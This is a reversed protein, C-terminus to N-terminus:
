GGGGGGESKHPLGLLTKMFEYALFRIGNNPLVKLMNAVWGHYIGRAGENRMITIFANWTNDYIKGKMQMRRRITDLPYCITQAVLGAAAGMSLTAITGPRKEPFFHNKLTDYAAFNFAVFPAISVLTPGLGKYFAQVGGEQLVSRAADMVGKLEPQVALRLRLLDLPHTVFTATMGACAGALLRREVTLQKENPRLLYLKYQEYSMFQTGSYPIVRLCNAGNGRWYGLPGDERWIRKLAQWVSTYKEEGPNSIHQTQMLIKVRDLPSVATRAMGGAVGGAVLQKLTRQLASWDQALRNKARLQESELSEVRERLTRLEKKFDTKEMEMEELKRLAELREKQASNLAQEMEHLKELDQKIAKKLESVGQDPALTSGRLVM